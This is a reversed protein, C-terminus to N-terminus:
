PGDGLGSPTATGYGVVFTASNSTGTRPPATHTYWCFLAWLHFVSPGGTTGSCPMVALAM